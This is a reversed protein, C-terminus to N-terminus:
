NEPCKVTGSAWIRLNKAGLFPEEFKKDRKGWWLIPKLGMLLLTDTGVNKSREVNGINTSLFIKVAGGKASAEQVGIVLSV